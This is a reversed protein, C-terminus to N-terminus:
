SDGAAETSYVRYILDELRRKPVHHVRNGDRWYRVSDGPAADELVVEDVPRGLAIVLSIALSEPLDLLARLRARQISGLMCGGLGRETAALLITQAAIGVDIDASEKLGKDTLVVIYGTPREEPPLGPWGPITGAWTLTSHIRENQVPACSLVYRLPQLNAASSVLRAVGILGKLIEEDLPHAADFRRCSRNRM